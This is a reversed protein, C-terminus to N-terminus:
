EIFGFTIARQLDEKTVERKLKKSLVDLVEPTQNRKHGMYLSQDIRYIEKGDLLVAKYEKLGEDYLIDSIAFSHQKKKKAM